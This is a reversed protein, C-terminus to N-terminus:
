KLILTCLHVRRIRIRAAEEPNAPLAWTYIKITKSQNFFPALQENNLKMISGERKFVERDREDFLAITRKWGKQRNRELYTVWLFGEQAVDAKTLALTNRSENELASELCLNGNHLVKWNDQQSFASLSGTLGLVIFLILKM